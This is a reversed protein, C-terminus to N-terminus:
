CNGGWGYGPIFKIDHHKFPAWRKVFLEKGPNKGYKRMVLLEQARAFGEVALVALAASLLFAFTFRRWPLGILCAATMIPHVGYGFILWGLVGFGLDLGLSMGFHTTRFAAVDYWGIIMVLFLIPVRVIWHARKPPKAEM